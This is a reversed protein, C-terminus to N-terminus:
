ERLVKKISSKISTKIKNKFVIRKHYKIHKGYISEVSKEFGDKSYLSLFDKRVIPKKSPKNLQANGKIAEAVTREEWFLNCSAKEFFAQGKKTNVLVLSIAGTYPHEFPIDSGLGWFDGITLDSVRNPNAYKCSYCAEYYTLSYFFSLLYTDTERDDAFILHGDKYASFVYSNDERFSIETVTKGKKNEIMEIHENLYKQPPTGHCILDVTILNEYEKQLYMKLAAVQCPLAILIVKKCEDLLSKIEKYTNNMDSHVYKSQKFEKIHNDNHGRIIVNLNEDFAAGFCYGSEKLTQQYFVSAAGGSASTKRDQEDNSWVAYAYLPYCSDIKNLVHCVSNCRGCEICLSTDIMPYNYGYEDEKYSICQKPCINICAGCATCNEKDCLKM